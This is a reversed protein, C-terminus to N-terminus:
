DQDEYVLVRDGIFVHTDRRFQEHAITATPATYGRAYTNALYVRGYHPPLVLGALCSALKGIPGTGALRMWVGAWVYRLKYLGM